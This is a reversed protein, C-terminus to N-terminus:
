VHGRCFTRGVVFQEGGEAVAPRLICAALSHGLSSDRLRGAVVSRRGALEVVLAQALDDYVLQLGLRMLAAHRQRPLFGLVRYIVEAHLTAVDGGVLFPYDNSRLHGSQFILVLGHRRHEVVFVADTRDVVALAQM